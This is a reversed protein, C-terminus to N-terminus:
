GGSSRESRGALAPRRVLRLRCVLRDNLHLVRRLSTQAMRDLRGRALAPNFPLPEVTVLALEDQRRRRQFARRRALLPRAERLLVRVARLYHPLWGRTLAGLLQMAEFMLFSPLYLLFTRPRYLKILLQWRNLITESIRTATYRGTARLSLGRTGERHICVAEPTSYIRHGLLGARLGFEHDELYIFLAEDFPPEPGWRGRDFLIAASVMSAVPRTRTRLEARPQESNCLVNMGLLHATVGDFQVRDPPDAHVVRPMACVARPDRDLVRSLAALCGPEPAVDNDIFFIRDFRAATVGANRAAGPGENRARQVIRVQPYRAAVLAPGDDTSANDVLLLEDPAPDMAMVADLTAPLYHAGNYNVVCLSIPLRDAAPTTNM